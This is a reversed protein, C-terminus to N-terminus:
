TSEGVLLHFKIGEEWGGQVHAASLANTHALDRWNHRVRQSGMSQLEGPEETWPIRWALISSHTAMGEELPDEQHLSGDVNRVDGASAPLSKLVLVVQSARSGFLLTHCPLASAECHLFRCISGQGPLHDLTVNGALLMYWQYSTILFASWRQPKGGWFGFGQRVMLFVDSLGLNLCEVQFSSKLVTLTLM